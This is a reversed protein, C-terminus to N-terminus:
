GGSKEAIAHQLYAEIFGDLDGDLVAQANGVEYGTRHDKVMQYPHLVYSRIQSGWEAKQYEGKLEAMQRAQEQQKRELLRAKLVRLATNKNQTLSRENQCSVVIGTPLHTIRVATANKQVNQGGASSARFTDIKLDKPNIEVESDDEVQPLVEVLAFSTHRRHAADFPSLRVLRHVGKEAKLYGYAWPGNVAVTVSKIGAEEGPLQDLIETEYGRKEAWRLYMRLLMEAWDHADTGGAGAHISLLANHRDYPGSLMAQLERQRLEQELAAVEAELEEALDPDGMEALEYADQWRQEWQAWANVEDQLRAREKMLARARQPDDWFDPAQIREELEALRAEKSALDFVGGCPRPKKTCPTCANCCHTWAAGGKPKPSPSRAPRAAGRPRAKLM